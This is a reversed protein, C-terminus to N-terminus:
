IHQHLTHARLAEPTAQLLCKAGEGVQREFSEPVVFSLAHAGDLFYSALKSGRLWASTPTFATLVMMLAAGFLLGRTFGLCLGLLQDIVGLGMAKATRHLLSTLLSALVLVVAFILTFGVANAAIENTFVGRLWPAVTPYYWAAAILGALVGGISLLIRLFGKRFGAVTSLVVILAMLWDFPTFTAITLENAQM